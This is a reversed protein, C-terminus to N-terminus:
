CAVATMCVIQSSLGIHLLNLNCKFDFIFNHCHTGRLQFILSLVLHTNGKVSQAM